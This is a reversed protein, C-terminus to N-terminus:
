QRPNSSQRKIAIIAADDSFCAITRTDPWYLPIRSARGAGAAVVEQEGGPAPWHLVAPPRAFLGGAPLEDAPDAPATPLVGSDRTVRVSSSAPVTNVVQGVSDYCGETHASSTDPRPRSLADERLTAKHQCEKVQVAGQDIAARAKLASRSNAM